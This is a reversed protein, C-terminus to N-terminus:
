SFIYKGLASLSSSIEYLWFAGICLARVDDFSKASNDRLNQPFIFTKNSSIEQTFADLCVQYYERMRLGGCFAATTCIAATLLPNRSRITSLTLRASTHQHNQNQSPPTIGVLARYIHPDLREQYFQFLQEAIELPILGRSILDAVHNHNSCPTTEEQSTPVKPVATISSAPFAGLGCSLNVNIVNFNPRKNLPTTHSPRHFFPVREIPQTPTISVMDSTSLLDRNSRPLPQLSRDVTESPQDRNLHHGGDNDVPNSGSILAEMKELRQEM